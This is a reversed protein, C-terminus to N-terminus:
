KGNNIIQKYFDLNIELEGENNMKLFHLPRWNKLGSSGQIFETVVKDLDLYSQLANHMVEFVKIEKENTAYVRHADLAANFRDENIVVANEKVDFNNLIIANSNTRQWYDKLAQIKAKISTTNPLELTNLFDEKKMKYGGFSPIEGILNEAQKRIFADTHHFFTKLSDSDLPAFGLTKYDETIENLRNLTENHVTTLHRIIGKSEQVLQRQM